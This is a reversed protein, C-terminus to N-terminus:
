TYLGDSGYNGIQILTPRGKSNVSHGFLSTLSILLINTLHAIAINAKHIYHLFNVAALEAFGTAKSQYTMGSHKGQKCTSPICAM